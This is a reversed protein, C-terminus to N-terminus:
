QEFIHQKQTWLPAGSRIYGPVEKYSCMKHICAHMSMVNKRGSLRLWTVLFQLSLFLWFFTTSYFQGSCYFTNRFAESLLTIYGTNLPPREIAGFTGPFNLSSRSDFGSRQSQDSAISITSIVHM